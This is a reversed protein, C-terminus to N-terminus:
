RPFGLSSRYTTDIQIRRSVVYHTVFRTVFRTVYTSTSVQMVWKYQKHVLGAAYESVIDLLEQMHRDYGVVTHRRVDSTKMDYEKMRLEECALIIAITEDLPMRDSLEPKLKGWASEIRNTTNNGLHPVDGRMYRVWMERCSDWNELLYVYYPHSADGGLHTELTYRLTDKYRQESRAYILQKWLRRLEQLKEGRFGFKRSLELKVAKLAHFQCLLIRANPLMEKLASIENFCKDVIVVKTDEECSPHSEKFSKLAARM